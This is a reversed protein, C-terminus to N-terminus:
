LTSTPLELARTNPPIYLEHYYVVDAASIRASVSQLLGVTGRKRGIAECIERSFRDFRLTQHHSIKRLDYLRALLLKLNATKLDRAALNALKPFRHGDFFFRSLVPFEGNVDFLREIRVVRNGRPRLATSWPGHAGVQKKSLLAAHIPVIDTGEDNLFRSNTFPEGLRYKKRTVFTGRGPVRKLDGSVVLDRIARQVTGVSYGCVDALDHETSITEGEQWFGDDLAAELMARLRAHKPSLDPVRRGYRSM